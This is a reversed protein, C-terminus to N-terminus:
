YLIIKARKVFRGSTLNVIYVGSSLFSLDFEDKSNETRIKSISNGRMDVITLWGKNFQNEPINITVKGTLPNSYISIDSSEYSSNINLIHQYEYAGIDIRNQVIREFGAIDVDSIFLGVTDVNGANICPSSNDLSYPYDGFLVFQPSEEINNEYLGNYEVTDSLGFALLGGEIDSYFFDPDSNADLYVQNGSLAAVNSYLITNQIIPNSNICALGGGCGYSPYIAENFCFTNNVLIVDSNECYLGGGRSKAMNGSLLNGVIRIDSSMFTTIGGGKSCDHGNGSINNNLITINNSSSLYIGGGIGYNNFYNEEITNANVVINQSSDIYIGAGFSTGYGCFLRNNQILNNEILIDISNNIYIGGGSYAMENYSIINDIVKASSNELVIGGGQIYADNYSNNIIRNSEIVPSSGVIYIGLGHLYRDDSKGFPGAANTITFGILKANETEDNTFRVLPYNEQNGDIITQSIYTTDNTTLFLSAVVIDKGSFDVIEIYNGPYVLVTDMPSANNIGEQITLYDSTGNKDVIIINGYAFIPLLFLLSIIHKISKM